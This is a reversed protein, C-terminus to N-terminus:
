QQQIRQVIPIRQLRLACLCGLGASIADTLLFPSAGISIVTVLDKDIGMILHFIAYMYGCGIVYVIFIALLCLPYVQIFSHLSLKSRLISCCAAALPFALLFGFSPQMIYGIGGGNAFVPLGLIGMGLYIGYSIFIQKSTLLMGAMIMSCTQLTIPIIGAPIVVKSSIIFLVIFFACLTLDKTKM